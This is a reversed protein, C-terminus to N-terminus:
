PAFVSNGLIPFVNQTVKLIRALAAELIILTNEKKSM